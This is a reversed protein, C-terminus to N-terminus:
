KENKKKRILLTVLVGIGVLEIASTVIFVIALYNASTNLRIEDDINTDPNNKDYIVETEKEVITEPASSPANVYVSSTNSMSFDDIKIFTFGTCCLAFYGNLELGDIEYYLTYNVEGATKLYLKLNGNNSVFRFCIANSEKIKGEDFPSTYQINEM